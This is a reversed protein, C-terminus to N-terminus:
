LGMIKAIEQGVARAEAIVTKERAWTDEQPALEARLDVYIKFKPETGSPRALARGGGKLRLELLDTDPLWRPRQDGGHRFDVVEEVTHGALQVGQAQALKDMATRMASMGLSGSLAISHQVSVWLGHQRYLRELRRFLSSGRASEEAALEAFVVAATIGDKDRVLDGISYGLAEEFGFAFRVKETREIELSANWVWKFGTLTRECRAGYHDAVPQLMPTSVISQAVLPRPMKSVNGLVYDALLIGVQNGTLQRWEGNPMRACAALRDVDPDNALILEADVQNALKFALDLAGSEEPNPYRVTPFDGNPEAQEAVSHVQTFGGAQLARIVSAHGVGHMPTYVIRLDRRLGHKPRLVSICNFYQDVVSEKVPECLDHGSALANAEIPIENALPAQAILAAIDKDTPPIIQAGNPAYLKYGNDGKPNHSATIVIAARACVQRAAFAAVPTPVPHPFYRVRIGQAVLVGVTDELFAKSSLRADAGVVVPLMAGPDRSKLYQAVALTARRVVARNMRLSGAGVEARLGATGFELDGGMCARLAAFDKREILQNLQQATEPDPDADRWAQAARLLEDDTAV